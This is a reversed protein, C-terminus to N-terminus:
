FNIEEFKCCFDKYAVELVGTPGNRQKGIIINAKGKHEPSDSYMEERHVFLVVDADQEVSGSDRLDSLVPRHDKRQENQRSLQSLAIVPVQLSKAILKLGRTIESIEQVRNPQKFESRMLGLYDVIILKVGNKRIHKRAKSLLQSITLGAGDDIFLPLSAIKGSSIGIRSLEDKTLGKANRMNLTSVESDLSLLRQVVQKKSMELEFLAVPTKNSTINKAINLALATKGGGPRGAIIILDDPNLGGLYQDLCKYGTLLGTVEGLRRKSIDEFVSSMLDAPTEAERNESDNSLEFLEESVKDILRTGNFNGSYAETQTRTSISILERLKRNERLLEAHYGINSPACICGQLEYFSNLLQDSGKSLRESLILEDVPIDNQHMTQLESFIQKHHSNYFDESKLIEMIEDLVTRDSIATFLVTRESEISQPLTKEIGPNM